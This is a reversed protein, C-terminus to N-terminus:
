DDPKLPRKFERHAVQNADDRVDAYRWTSGPAAVMSIDEIDEFQRLGLAYGKRPDADGEYESFTPRRGDHGGSLQFEAHIAGATLKDGASIGRRAEDSSPM